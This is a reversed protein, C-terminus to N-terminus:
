AIRSFTRLVSRFATGVPDQPGSAGADPWPVAGRTRDHVRTAILHKTRDFSCTGSCIL